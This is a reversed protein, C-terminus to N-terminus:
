SEANPTEGEQKGSGKKRHEIKFSVSFLTKLLLLVLLLDLAVIIITSWPQYFHWLTSVRQKFAGLVGPASGVKFYLKAAAAPGLSVSSSSDEIQAASELYFFYDGQAADFPLALSVKINKSEKPQLSVQSPNFLVWKKLLVEQRKREVTPFKALFEAPLEVSLKYKASIEGTNIIPLDPLKYVGGPTLIENVSIKGLGVGAGLQALSKHPYFLSILILASVAFSFRVISKSLPM